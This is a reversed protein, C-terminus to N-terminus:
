HWKERKRKKTVNKYKRNTIESNSIVGCMMSFHQRANRLKPLSHHTEVPFVHLNSLRRKPTLYLTAPGSNLTLANVTCMSHPTKLCFCGLQIHTREHFHSWLSAPGQGQIEGLLLPETNALDTNVFVKYLMVVLFSTHVHVRMCKYVTYIVKKLNLNM